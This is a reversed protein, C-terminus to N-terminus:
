ITGEATLCTSDRMASADIPGTRLRELVLAYDRAHRELEDDTLEHAGHVCFPPLYQMGCLGATREVPTLFERISHGNRGAACYAEERAGTSVAQVWTKGRLATGHSGYAWGHELVLDFWQKVLAPTSYWFLPHQCVIVDHAELLAQERPVDVDFDPYAEYLDHITPPRELSTAAGLLARNLRSRGFAPHAFLLLVRRDHESM